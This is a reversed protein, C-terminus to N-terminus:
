FSVRAAWRMLPANWRIDNQIWAEVGFSQWQWGAGARIETARVAGRVERITDTERSGLEASSGWTRYEQTVEKRFPARVGGRLILSDRVREEMSIFIAGAWTTSVKRNLPTLPVGSADLQPWTMESRSRLVEIGVVVDDVAGPRARWGSQLGSEELFDTWGPRGPSRANWRDRRYHAAVLLGPHPSITRAAAEFRVGGQIDWTGRPAASASDLLNENWWESTGDVVGGAMAVEFARGSPSRLMWGAGLRLDRNKIESGSHTVSVMSEYQWLDEYEHGVVNDRWGLSLGWGSSSALLLTHTDGDFLYGGRLAGRGALALAFQPRPPEDSFWINDGSVKVEAYEVTRERRDYLLCARFGAASAPFLALSGEDTALLDPLAKAALGTPTADARCAPAAVCALLALLGIAGVGISKGPKM